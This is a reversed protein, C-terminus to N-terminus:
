RKEGEESVETCVQLSRRKLITKHLFVQHTWTDMVRRKVIRVLRSLAAEEIQLLQAVRRSRHMLATNSAQLRPHFSLKIYCYAWRSWQLELSGHFRM